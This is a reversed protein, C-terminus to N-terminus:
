QNGRRAGVLTGGAEDEEEERRRRWLLLLLLGVAVLVIVAIVSTVWFNGTRHTVARAPVPSSTEGAVLPFSITAAAVRTVQDSSLTITALWPGSPINRDLPVTVPETQGIGLTTGLKAPFPGASTGGPGNTLMLTGSLDLARGGTNHVQATVYPIGSSNRAATLSNITFDIAPAPGNGVSLYVRIGVRNIVSVGSGSTSEPPQAWVVAYREGSVANLPVAITVTADVEGRPPVTVSTPAVTIWTSLDNTQGIPEANFSGGNIVAPGSYLKVEVPSNYTSSVAVRRSITMGPAVHDIIYTKARPDNQLSVPAQLLRIGISPQAGPATQSLAGTAPALAGAVALVTFLFRRM